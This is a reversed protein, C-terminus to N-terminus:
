LKPLKGDPYQGWDINKGLTGRLRQWFSENDTISIFNGDAKASVPDIVPELHNYRSISDRVFPIHYIHTGFRKRTFGRLLSSQFPDTALGITKFGAERAILYSYYVNETSHRARTEYYIHSKPIGLQAAYLGMIIGEYFPSYVSSGSYIVNKTYGNKYLIYSWLVRAKMISDWGGNQFPVGPVIIVDLPMVRSVIVLDKEPRKKYSMCGIIQLATICILAIIAIKTVNKL